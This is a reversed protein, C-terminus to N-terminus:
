LSEVSLVVITFSSSMIIDKNKNKIDNFETYAHLYTLRVLLAMDNIVKDEHNHQSCLGYFYLITPVKAEKNEM